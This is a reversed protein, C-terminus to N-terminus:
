EPKDAKFFEIHNDSLAKCDILIIPKSCMYSVDRDHTFNFLTVTCTM